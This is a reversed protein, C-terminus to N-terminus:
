YTAGVNKQRFTIRRYCFTKEKTIIQYYGLYSDLFRSLEFGVTGDIVQDISPLPFYYNPYADNVNTFALCMQDLNFVKKVVVVNSFWKPYKM